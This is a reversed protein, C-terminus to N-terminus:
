AVSLAAGNQRRRHALFGLGCFGILLMAWTSPEPAAPLSIDSWEGHTNNSATWGVNFNGFVDINDGATTINISSSGDSCGPGPGCDQQYTSGAISWAVISGDAFTYTAETIESVEGYVNPPPSSAPYDVNSGGGSYPVSGRFYATDGESLSLTGSFNSTDAAFTVSGSLGGVTCSPYCGGSPFTPIEILQAGLYDYTTAHASSFSFLLFGLLFVFGRM